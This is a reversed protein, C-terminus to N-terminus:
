PFWSKWFGMLDGFYTMNELHYKALLTGACGAVIWAILRPYWDQNQFVIFAANTWYMGAATIQQDGFSFLFRQRILIIRQWYALCAACVPSFGYVAHRNDIKSALLNSGGGIIAVLIFVGLFFDVDISGTSFISNSNLRPIVRNLETLTPHVIFNAYSLDRVLHPRYFISALSDLKTHTVLDDLRKPLLLRTCQPCCFFYIASFILLYCIVRHATYVRDSKDWILPKQHCLNAALRDCIEGIANDNFSCTWSQLLGHLIMSDFSEELAFLGYNTIRRDFFRKERGLIFKNKRFSETGNTRKFLKSVGDQNVPNTGTLLLTSLLVLFVRKWVIHFRLSSRWSPDSVLRGNVLLSTHQRQM